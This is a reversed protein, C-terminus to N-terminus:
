NGGATVHNMIYDDQRPGRYYIINDSIVDVPYDLWPLIEGYEEAMLAQYVEWERVPGVPKVSGEPWNCIFVHDNADHLDLLQKMTLTM